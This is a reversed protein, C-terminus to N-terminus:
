NSSMDDEFDDDEDESRSAGEDEELDFIHLMSSADGFTMVAGTGRTGCLNVQSQHQEQIHQPHSSIHRRQPIIVRDADGTEDHALSLFTCEDDDLELASIIVEDQLNRKFGVKQFVIDDYGLVWLEEVLEQSVVDIFKVVFGLSQRGEQIEFDDNLNPSLSSNGDDGYFSISVVKYGEPIILNARFYFGEQTEQEHGIDGPIAIFEISTELSRALLTWFPCEEIIFADQDNNTRPLFFGSKTDIIKEGSSVNKSGAGKRTHIAM